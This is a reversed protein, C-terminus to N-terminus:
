LVDDRLFIEFFCNLQFCADLLSFVLSLFLDFELSISVEVPCRGSKPQGVGHFITISRYVSKAIRDWPTTNVSASLGNVLMEIPIRYVSQPTDMVNADITLIFVILILSLFCVFCFKCEVSPCIRLLM